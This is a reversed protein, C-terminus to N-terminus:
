RGKLLENLKRLNSTRHEPGLNKGFSIVSPLFRKPCFWLFSSMTRFSRFSAFKKWNFITLYYESGLVGLPLMFRFSPARADGGSYLVYIHNDNTSMSELFSPISKGSRISDVSGSALWVNNGARRSWRCIELELELTLSGDTVSTPSAFPTVLSLPKWLLKSLTSDVLSSIDLFIFAGGM